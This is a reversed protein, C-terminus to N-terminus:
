DGKKWCKVLVAKKMLEKAFFGERGEDLAYWFMISRFEKGAQNAIHISYRSLKHLQKPPVVMIVDYFNRSQIM